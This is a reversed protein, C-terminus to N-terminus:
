PRDKLIKELEAVYKRFERRGKETIAFTTRPKKALFDKKVRILGNQELVAAHVSLNGDTVELIEKLESFTLKGRAALASMVALRVREHILNNLRDPKM